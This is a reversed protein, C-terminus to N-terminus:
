LIEKASLLVVGDSLQQDHILLWFVRFLEFLMHFLREILSAQAARAQVFLLFLHDALAQGSFVVLHNNADRARAFRKTGLRYNFKKRFVFLFHKQNSV